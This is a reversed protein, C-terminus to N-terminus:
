ALYQKRKESFEKVAELLADEITNANHWHTEIGCATFGTNAIRVVQQGIVEEIQIVFAGSPVQMMKIAESLESDLEGLISYDFEHSPTGMKNIRDFTAELALEATKPSDYSQSLFKEMEDKPNSM